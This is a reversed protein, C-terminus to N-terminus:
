MNTPEQAPWSAPCAYSSSHLPAEPSGLWGPAAAQRRSPAGPATPTLPLRFKSVTMLVAIFEEVAGRDWAERLMSGLTSPSSGQPPVGEGLTNEMEAAAASALEAGGGRQLQAGNRDGADRDLKPSVESM